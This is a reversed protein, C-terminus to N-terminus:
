FKSMTFYVELGLSVLPFGDTGTLFLYFEFRADATKLTKNTQSQKALKKDLLGKLVLYNFLAPVYIYM